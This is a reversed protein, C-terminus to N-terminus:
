RFTESSIEGMAVTQKPRNPRRNYYQEGFGLKERVLYLPRRKDERYIRGIYEGIVGLFVLQIGGIFLIAIFSLTWGPVWSLTFLRVFLAYIIGILSLAFALLGAWIALRLPVLSFSLIGDIAFRIMKFLPYKSVGALRPSRQYPVAIQSFGVWSVMGRLFRDREPMIKLAEVVRRDMLRFDGTDLPIPVDSLRNMLRYFLKASWLKFPTEGQRDTRVGYAVDYGQYWKDIMEEIVEPPDQLDADILVVADGCVHDLGATVAMQHGFNRSLLVAKVRQDNHQLQRLLEATKDQSGDDIYILEFQPTLQELVAVLRRHTENIVEEENYCPIVISIFM